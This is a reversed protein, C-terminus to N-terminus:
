EEIRKPTLGVILAIPVKISTIENKITAKAM